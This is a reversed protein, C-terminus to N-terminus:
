QDSRTAGSRVGNKVERSGGSCDGTGGKRYSDQDRDIALAVRDNVAIDDECTRVRRRDKGSIILEGRGICTGM